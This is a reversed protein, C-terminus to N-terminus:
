APHRVWRESTEIVIELLQSSRVLGLYRELANQATIMSLNCELGDIIVRDGQHRGEDLNNMVATQTPSRLSKLEYVVEFGRWRILLDPGQEAGRMEGTYGRAELVKAYKREAATPRPGLVIVGPPESRLAEFRILM